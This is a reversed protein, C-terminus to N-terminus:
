SIRCANATDPPRGPQSRYLPYAARCNTGRIAVASFCKAIVFRAHFPLFLLGDSIRLSAIAHGVIENGLWADLSWAGARSNRGNKGGHKNSRKKVAIWHEPLRARHIPADAKELLLYFAAKFM